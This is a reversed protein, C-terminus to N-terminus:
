LWGGWYMMGTFTNKLKVEEKFIGYVASGSGTMSAYVAGERYLQEKITAIVPHKEFISKEFANVLTQKWDSIPLAGLEKLSQTPRAPTIGAYAEATGIFDDPKVVVCYYGKLVINIPELVDGKGTGLAPKNRIFFACDSGLRSAYDLLTTEDLRLDFLQNLLILVASADSSGGGLGAGMPIIKHLIIKVPPLDFDKDLLNYAKICLNNPVHGPIELGTTKFNVKASIQGKEPIIELIDSLPIPFFITEITHFHDPRKELVVLGINIKANPFCLM